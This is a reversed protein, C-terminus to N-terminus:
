DHLEARRVEDLAAALYPAFPRGDLLFAVLLPGHEALAAPDLAGQEDPDHLGLAGALLLLLVHPDVDPRWSAAGRVCDTLIRQIDGSDLGDPHREELILRTASGMALGTQDTTALTSVANGYLETDQTSAAAVAEDAAAAVARAAPPLHRWSTTM